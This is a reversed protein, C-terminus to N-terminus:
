VFGNDKRYQIIDQHLQEREALAKETPAAFEEQWTDTLTALDELHAELPDLINEVLPDILIAGMGKGDESSFWNERLPELITTNIGEILDDVSTLLRVLEDLVDRIKDGLGFPLNDLVMNAFDALAEAIPNDTAKDLAKGISTELKEISDAVASVQTELWVISEEATPLAEGLSLLAQEAWDLGSKLMKAGAEVAALPLTLAQMGTALIADLGIKELDEYLAVLGQLRDIEAQADNLAAQTEADSIQWVAIGTGAAVALGAAGGAVAGTLFQRRSLAKQEEVRDTEESLMEELKKEETPVQEDTM